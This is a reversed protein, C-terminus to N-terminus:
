NFSQDAPAQASSESCVPFVVSMCTGKQTCSQVDFVGRHREVITKSIFLGLGFGEKHSTFFPDFIRPIDEQPIGVGDDEVELRVMSAGNDAGGVIRVVVEGETEVAQVANLILNMLVQQIQSYDGMVTFGRGHTEKLLCVKKEQLKRRLFLISEDVVSELDVPLEESPGPKTFSLLDHLIDGAREANRAITELSQRESDNLSCSGLLDESNALIIGLPNNIEHAIGATMRGMIALREARILENELHKRETVDRSFCCALAPQGAQGHLTTSIMEVHIRRGDKGEFVVEKKGFGNQFVSSIFSMADERQESILFEFLRSGPAHEKNGHLRRHAITNALRISGDPSILHIMEPSSEILDRYKKESQNLDTTIRQVRFHLSRNWVAFVLLAALCVGLASLIYKLYSHWASVGVDKGLWKGRLTEYNGSELIKGLNMSVDSLLSVNAKRLALVLNTVQVPLGVERIHTYKMKQILYVSTRACPSLYVDAVGNEVMTLAETQSGAMIIETAGLVKSLPALPSNGDVVLKHGPLDNACTVTVCGENVFFKKEIIIGTDILQVYSMDSLPEVLAVLDARGNQLADGPDESDIIHLRLPAHMMGALMRALDVVFGRMRGNEDLFSFPPLNRYVGLNLPDRSARCPSSFLFAMALLVFVMKKLVDRQKAM